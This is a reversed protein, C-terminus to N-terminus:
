FNFDSNPLNTPKQSTEELIEKKKSSNQLSTLELLEPQSPLPEPQEIPHVPSQSFAQNSEKLHKLVELNLDIATGIVVLLAFM